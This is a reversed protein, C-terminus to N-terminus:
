RPYGGPPRDPVQYATEGPRSPVGPYRVSWAAVGHLLSGIAIGLVLDVLATAVKQELPASTSVPFVVFLVTVLGVIWSFFTLPRPTSVMLLYLLATAILAAAAAALMFGTTDVNGYAGDAKPALVPIALVWRCVLVGVLAILAAVIATAVGGSWLKGADVRPRQPPQQRSPQRGPGMNATTM